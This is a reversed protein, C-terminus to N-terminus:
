TAVCVTTARVWSFGHQEYLAIRDALTDLMNSRLNHALRQPASEHNRAGRTEMWSLVYSGLGRRRHEPHVEGWLFALHETPSSPLQIVWGLPPWSATRAFGLLTDTQTNVSPEDFGRERDDLTDVWGRQDVAEIDNLLRHIAM